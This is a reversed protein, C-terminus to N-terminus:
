VKRRQLKSDNRRFYTRIASPIFPVMINNSISQSGSGSPEVVPASHTSAGDSVILSQRSSTGSSEVNNQTSPVIQMDSRDTPPAPLALHVTSSPLQPTQPAPEIEFDSVQQGSSDEEESMYETYNDDDDDDDDTTNFDVEMEEVVSNSVKKNIVVTEVLTNMNELISDGHFWDGYKQDSVTSNSRTLGTMKRALSQENPCPYALAMELLFVTLSLVQETVECVHLAKYLITFLVGHLVKSYLLKRPDLFKNTDPDKPIRFPPWPHSIKDKLKGSQRVYQSFRDISSQFDRRHVARLFVHLPDYEQEWIEPKPSFMGQSLNGGSELTPGRYDAIEQLTSEFEKNQSTGCKEPLLDTLQSHTRDSMALLTVMEQRVITEEDMGLNTRLSFLMALFTLAYELMPMVQDSELFEGHFDREDNTHSLSLWEWVHFRELTTQIFWDPSLLSACQQILFMDPDVLSNCFHCQIYTMAQGKMQLGNRVWLGCMIEAFSIQVQLPHALYLKLKAEDSPLMEHLKLGQHQVGHHLFIAYYRHLPIHFTAQYAHPVDKETFPLLVFWKDLCRQTHLVLQKTMAASSTDKLHSILTWMPTACIELEASFAAYYSDNEYEVHLNMERENLNMAQFCMIFELWLEILDCKSMFLNAVPLHTLINNLDSVLPWYSHKKMIYHDCKVVKHKNLKSDQMMSKVLIGDNREREETGEITARLSAIIVHLLHQQECLKAVLNENSFLQVSVHVVCNSLLDHASPKNSHTIGDDGNRFTALMMSIRSYHYVFAEAFAEKYDADPLMNLLFCVLKQPFEYVVTWFLLEEVFTTHNFDKDFAKIVCRDRHCVSCFNHFSSPPNFNNMRRKALLYSARREVLMDTIELDTSDCNNVLSSYVKPDTMVECIVKRMAAGMETLHNLISTIFGDVEKLCDPSNRRLQIVLRLFMRPMIAKAVCLLDRPPQPKTENPKPEHRVCFGSEKMVSADGCDCAGGAQSRFMNFDHGHPYEVLGADTPWSIQQGSLAVPLRRITDKLHHLCLLCHIFALYKGETAFEEPTMGVSIIWRLWDIIENDSINKRPDLLFDCFQSLLPSEHKDQLKSCQTLVLSSAVKKGKRLLSDFETSSSM